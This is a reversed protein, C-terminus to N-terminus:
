EKKRQSVKVLEARFGAMRAQLQEELSSAELEIYYDIAAHELGIVDGMTIQYPDKLKLFPCKPSHKKHEVRPPPNSVFEQSFM